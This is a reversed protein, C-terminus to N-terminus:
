EFFESNDVNERDLIEKERLDLDKLELIEPTTSEYPDVAVFGMGSCFTQYSFTELFENYKAVAAYYSRRAASLQEEVENVTAILLQMHKESLKNTNGLMKIKTSELLIDMQSHLGNREAKTLNPDKLRKGLQQIQEIETTNTELDSQWLKSFQNITAIRKDQMQLMSMYAQDVRHFNRTATSRTTTYFILFYFFISIAAIAFFSM